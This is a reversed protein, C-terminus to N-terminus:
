QSFLLLYMFYYVPAALAVSDVSDLAGGRGMIKAGSDSVGVSRKIASEALDGITAALGAVLGLLAGAPLSPMLTSSFASPIFLAAAIGSLVSFFLGGIFGAISKNPSAAVFGRNGSGWLNGAAWAASDNLLVVLFFILIVMSAEGFAALRIAWALFLGPYIMVAFGATVRGISANLNEKKMFVLSFLLWSAALIFTGAVIHKPFDFCVILIWVAPFLAGFVLSEAASIHLNKKALINRFELASLISFVLLTLNLLLHNYHPFLLILSLLLPFGVFFVLFRQVIKKM